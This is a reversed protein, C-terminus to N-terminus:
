GRYRARDTQERLEEHIKFLIIAEECVLRLFLPGFVLTALGGFFQFANFTTRTEAAKAKPNSPRAPTEDDDATLAPRSSTSGVMQYLGMGVCGATGIWFFLQILLPTLMLRFTLFDVVPNSGVRHPRRVLPPDDEGVEYAPPPPPMPPPPQYTYVAATAPYTPPPPALSEVQLGAPTVLLRNGCQKCGIKRGVQDPRVAYLKGCVPCSYNM